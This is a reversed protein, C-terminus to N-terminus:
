IIRQKKVSWLGKSNGASSELHNGPPEPDGRGDERGDERGTQHQTCLAILDETHLWRAWMFPFEKLFSHSLGPFIM